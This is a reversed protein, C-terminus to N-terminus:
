KDDGLRDTLCSGEAFAWEFAWQGQYIQIGSDKLGACLIDEVGALTDTHFESLSEEIPVLRWATGRPEPDLICRIEFRDTLDHNSWRLVNFRQIEDPMGAGATAEGLVSGGISEKGRQISTAAHNEVSTTLSAIQSVLAKNTYCGMLDYRLAEYLERVEIRRKARMRRFFLMEASEALQVAASEYANDTDFVLCVMRENFFVAQRPFDSLPRKALAILDVLRDLILRRCPPDIEQRHMGGSNDCLHVVHEPDGPRRVFTARTDQQACERVFQIAERIM